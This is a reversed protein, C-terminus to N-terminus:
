IRLAPRAKTLICFGVAWRAQRGRASHASAFWLEQRGNCRCARRAKRAEDRGAEAAVGVLPGGRAVDDRLQVSAIALELVASLRLRVHARM